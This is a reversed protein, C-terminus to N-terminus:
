EVIKLSDVVIVPITDTQEVPRGKDDMQVKPRFKLRGKVEVNHPYRGTSDHIKFEGHEAKLLKQATKNASCDLLLDCGEAHVYGTITLKTITVEGKEEESRQGSTRLQGTVQVHIVAATPDEGAGVLAVVTLVVLVSSLLTSVYYM